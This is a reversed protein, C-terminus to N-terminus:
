KKRERENEKEERGQGRRASILPWVPFEHEDRKWKWATNGGEAALTSESAGGGAELQTKIIHRTPAHGFM